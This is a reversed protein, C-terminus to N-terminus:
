SETAGGTLRLTYLLGDTRLNTGLILGLSLKAQPFALLVAAVKDTGNLEIRNEAILTHVKDLDDHAAAQQLPSSQDNGM